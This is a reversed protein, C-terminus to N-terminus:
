HGIPFNLFESIQIEAGKGFIRLTRQKKLVQILYTWICFYRWIVKFVGQFFKPAFSPRKAHDQCSKGRSEVRHCQWM